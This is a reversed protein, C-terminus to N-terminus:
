PKFLILTLISASGFIEEPMYIFLTLILTLISIISTLSSNLVINEPKFEIMKSEGKLNYINGQININKLSPNIDYEHKFFFMQNIVNLYYVAGIVSTLIAVLAMFVYGNDLAASLVM